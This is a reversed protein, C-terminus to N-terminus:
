PKLLRQIAEYLKREPHSWKFKDQRLEMFEAWKISARCVRMERRHGAKTSLPVSM